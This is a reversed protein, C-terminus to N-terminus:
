WCESKEELNIWSAVFVDPHNPDFFRSLDDGIKGTSGDPLIARITYDKVSMEFVTKGKIDAMLLSADKLNAGSLDTDHLTSGDFDVRELNAGHLITKTLDSNIFKANRLNADVLVAGSLNAGELNAGELNADVLRAGQLNAFSLDANRLIGKEGALWNEHNMYDVAAKATENSRSGAERILGHKMQKQIRMANLQDLVVITVLVSLVETFINVEYGKDGAFLLLGIWVGVLVLLIGGGVKYFNIYEDWIAEIEQERKSKALVTVKTM